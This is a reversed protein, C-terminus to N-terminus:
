DEPKAGKLADVPIPIGKLEGEVVINEGVFIIDPPASDGETCSSAGLLLAITSYRVLRRPNTM